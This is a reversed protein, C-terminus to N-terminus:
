AEDSMSEVGAAAFLKQVPLEHLVIRDRGENKARYLAQDARAILEAPDIADGFSFALGGSITIGPCDIGHSNIRLDSVLQRLREACVLAQEVSTEPLIIIFEEGGFRCVFDDTRVSTQLVAAVSELVTDGLAHGFRDNFTKFHDVDLMLVGLTNQKRRGRALEKQLTIQMFYRNFLGTLPDRISQNELKQRVQMSAIAMSILQILQRLAEMRQEVAAALEVTPVEVFLIGITEGYAVMPICLYSDPVTNGTFHTCHIESLGTRRWRLSGSRLGCCSAPAFIESQVSSSASDTGWHAVTEVLHRSNDIIGLTGRTGPVLLPISRVASTYVQERNTCLQLEDRAATLLRSELAQEELAAISLALESNVRQTKRAIKRRQYADRLMFSFLISLIIFSLGAFVVDTTLSATSNAQSDEVRTQLLKKEQESMENLTQRCRFIQDDPVNKHTALQDVAFSLRAACQQLASANASQQQNDEVEGKLHTTLAELRLVGSRAANLPDENSTSAFLRSNAEVRDISQGSSQLSNLIEQSHQVWRAATIVHNTSRYVLAGAGLTFLCSGIAATIILVISFNPNASTKQKM